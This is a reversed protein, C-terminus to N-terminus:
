SEDHAGLQKNNEGTHDIVMWITYGRKFTIQGEDSIGYSQPVSEDKGQAYLFCDSFSEMRKLKVGDSIRLKVGNFRLTDKESEKEKQYEREEERRKKEDISLPKPGRRSTKGRKPPNVKKNLKEARRDDVLSEPAKSFLKSSAPSNTLGTKTITTGRPIRDRGMESCILEKVAVTNSAVVTYTGPNPQHSPIVVKYTKM